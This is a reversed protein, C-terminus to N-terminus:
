LTHKVSRCYKVKCMQQYESSANTFGSQFDTDGRFIVCNTKGVIKRYERVWRCVTNRDIGTEEAFGSASKGTEPILKVAQERMEDTYKANNSPM